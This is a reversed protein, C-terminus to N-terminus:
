RTAETLVVLLLGLTCFFALLVAAEVLARGIRRLQHM